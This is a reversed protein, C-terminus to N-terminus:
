LINLIIVVVIVIIINIIIIIIIIIFGVNNEWDVFSSRANEWLVNYSNCDLIYNYYRTTQRTLKISEKSWRGRTHSYIFACTSFSLLIDTTSSTSLM